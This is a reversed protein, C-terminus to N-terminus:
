REMFKDADEIEAEISRIIEILPKKLRPTQLVEKVVFYENLNSKAIDSLSKIVESASLAFAELRKDLYARINPKTLNESGIEKATKKSYGARISAQTANFDKLYEDCFRKQKLRLSM